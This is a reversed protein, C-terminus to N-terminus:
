LRGRKRDISNMRAIYREVPEDDGPEDPVTVSSAGLPRIPPKARSLEATSASGHGAGASVRQELLQRVLPAASVDLGVTESALQRADDPHTALYYVLDHSLNSRFVAEAMVQTIGKGEAKMAADAADVQEQYDRYKKKGLETREQFATLARAQAEKEREKQFRQEVLQDVSGLRQELKWDALAEVFEEYTKYTTGIESESPRGHPKAPETTTVPAPQKLRALEAELQQARREADRQREIAQAIRAQPNERPKAKRVQAPVAGEDVAGSDASRDSGGLNERGASDSEGSGGESGADVSGALEDRGETEQDGVHSSEGSMVARMAAESEHNSSIIFGDHEITAM